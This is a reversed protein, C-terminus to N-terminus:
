QDVLCTLLQCWSFEYYDLPQEREEASGNSQPSYKKKKANGDYDLSLHLFMSDEPLVEFQLKGDQANLEKIQQRLNDASSILHQISQKRASRKISAFLTIERGDSIREMRAVLDIEVDTFGFWEGKFIKMLRYGEFDEHPLHSRGGDEHCRRFLHLFYEELVPKGEFGELIKLCDLSISTNVEGNDLLGMQHAVRRALDTVIWRSAGRCSDLLFITKQRHILNYRGQLFRLASYVTDISKKTKNHIYKVQDGEKLSPPCALLTALVSEFDDDLLLEDRLHNQVASSHVANYIRSRAENDDEPYPDLREIVADILLPMGGTAAIM